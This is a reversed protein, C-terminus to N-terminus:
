NAPLGLLATPVHYPPGAWNSWAVDTPGIVHEIAKWKGETKKLLAYTIAGDFAEQEIATKYHTKKFDIPKDTPTRPECVVFAFSGLIRLTRVRFIVVQKLDAEIRPRLADLLTKRLPHKAGVETPKQFIM